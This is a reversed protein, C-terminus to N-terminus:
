LQGFVLPNWTAKSLTACQSFTVLQLQHDNLYKNGGHNFPADITIYLPVKPPPAKTFANTANTGYVIYNHLATIAWFSCAGFQDLAAAYTHALTVSFQRTPSGNCVCQSKKTGESKVPYTWILPLVNFQPPRKIVAGFMDQAHYQNLQKFESVSWEM